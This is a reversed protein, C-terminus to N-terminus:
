RKITIPVPDSETLVIMNNPDTADLITIVYVLKHTGPSLNSFESNPLSLSLDTYSAKLYAPRFPVGVGLTQNLLYASTKPAVPTTGDPQYVQLAVMGPKGKFNDVEFTVNVVTNKVGAVVVNFRVRSSKITAVPAGSVPPNIGGVPKATATVNSPLTTPSEPATTVSTDPGQASNIKSPDPLKLRGAGYINDTGKKGLDAVNAMLYAKVQAATLNPYAQLVLAAAGAVLPTAGSTGSFGDPVDPLVENDPATVDPKIRDDTTPGESSYLEIVDRTLQTAGITLASSSDAPTSVSHDPVRAWKPLLGNNIFIDLTNDSAAHAKRIVMYYTAGPTSDFTVAQYPYDHRRGNVPEAATAM